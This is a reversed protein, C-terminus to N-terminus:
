IYRLRSWDKRVRYTAFAAARRTAWGLRIKAQTPTGSKGIEWVVFVVNHPGGTGSIETVKEVGV